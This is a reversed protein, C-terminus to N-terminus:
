FPYGENYKDRLAEEHQEQIELKEELDEIRQELFLIKDELEEVTKEGISTRYDDHLGQFQNIDFRMKYVDDETELYVKEGVTLLLTEDTFDITLDIM